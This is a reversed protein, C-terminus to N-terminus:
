VLASKRSALTGRCKRRLEIEARALVNLRDPDGKLEAALSTAKSIAKRLKDCSDTPLGAVAELLGVAAQYALFPREAKPNLREALWDLHDESPFMNLIAVAMLRMGPSSNEQFQPLLSRVKSAQAKMRSFLATMVRTRENGASMTRRINEYENALAIADKYAFDDVPQPQLAEAAPSTQGSERLIDRMARLLGGRVHETFEAHSPYSSTLGQASLKNRFEVVKALQEVESISPPVSFPQDCFYFMIRPLSSKERRQFAREFEEITGSDARDTPTGARKWMIGVFIDYDIPIERNIVSQAGGGIDPYTHTEYRVLELNLRKEPVLYALVDNIDGILKALANREDVVDSPSAVFVKLTRPESM